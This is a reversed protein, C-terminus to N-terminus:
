TGWGFILRLAAGILIAAVYAYGLTRANRGLRRLKRPQMVALYAIFLGSVVFGLFLLRAM